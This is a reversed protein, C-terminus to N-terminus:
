AVLRSVAILLMQARINLLQPVLKSMLYIRVAILWMVPQARLSAATLAGELKTDKDTDNYFTYIQSYIEPVNPIRTVELIINNGESGLVFPQYM